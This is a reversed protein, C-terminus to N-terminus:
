WRRVIRQDASRQGAAAAAQTGINAEFTRMAIAYALRKGGPVKENSRGADHEIEFGRQAAQVNGIGALRCLAEEASGWRVKETQTCAIKTLHDFHRQALVIDGRPLSPM